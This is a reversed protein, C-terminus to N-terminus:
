AKPEVERQLILRAFYFLFERHNQSTQLRSMCDAGKKSVLFEFTSMLNEDAGVVRNLEENLFDHLVPLDDETIGSRDPELVANGWITAIMMRFKEKDVFEDVLRCQDLIEEVAPIFRERAEEIKMIPVRYVPYCSPLFSLLETAPQQAFGMLKM